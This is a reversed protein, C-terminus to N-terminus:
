FEEWEQAAAAVRAQARAVPNFTPAHRGPQAPEPRGPQVQAGTRFRAVLRALEGAENKLNAAAATAQEVMAANQQTVQDM